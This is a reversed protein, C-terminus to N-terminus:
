RHLDTLVVLHSIEVGSTVKYMSQLASSVKTKARHM